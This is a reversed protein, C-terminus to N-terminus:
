TSLKSTGTIKGPKDEGKKYSDSNKDVKDEVGTIVDGVRVLIRSKIRQKIEATYDVTATKDGNLRHNGLKLDGNPDRLKVTVKDM